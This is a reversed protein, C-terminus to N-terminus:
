STKAFYRASFYGSVKSAATGSSRTYEPDFFSVSGTSPVGRVAPSSTSEGSACICGYDLLKEALHTRFDVAHDVACSAGLGLHEWKTSFLCTILSLMNGTGGRNSRICFSLPVGHLSIYLTNLMPWRMSIYTRGSAASFTIAIASSNPISDRIIPRTSSAGAFLNVILDDAPTNSYQGSWTGKVVM